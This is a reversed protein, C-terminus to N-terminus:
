PRLSRQPDSERGRNATTRGVGSGGAGRGSWNAGTGRVANKRVGEDPDHEVLAILRPTASSAEPGIRALAIVAEVRLQPNPEDLLKVLAPVSPQGIRTLADVVTQQM